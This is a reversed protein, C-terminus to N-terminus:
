RSVGRVMTIIAGYPPVAVVEPGSPQRGRFASPLSFHRTFHHNGTRHGPRRIRRALVRRHRHRGLLDGVGAEVGGLGPGRDHMDVHAIGLGGLGAHVLREVLFRDVADAGLIGVHQDIEGGAGACAEKVVVLVWRLGARIGDQAPRGLAHLVHHLDPRFM